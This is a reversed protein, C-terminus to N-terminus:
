RTVYIIGRIGIIIFIGFSLLPHRILKRWKGKETFVKWCRYSFKLIPDHPWKERYRQMSRAYYRKKRFYERIGIDDHHYLVNTSVGKIGNIRHGWDSDEPGNLGEDFLPCRNKVVFRPVDVATGTYFEREFKRIKGFFSEAIIVEPIYIADYGWKTLEICEKILCPSISQDSDLFLYADGTARQIGINRQESRELGEDVHLLEVHTPLSEILRTIDRGHNPVIVSIKM